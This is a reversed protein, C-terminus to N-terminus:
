RTGEPSPAGVSVSESAVSLYPEFYAEASLADFRVDQLRAEKGDEVAVTFERSASPGTPAELTIRYVGVPLRLSLPTSADEPLAQKTGDQAVVAIVTAWPFADISVSGHLVLPAAPAPRLVAYSGLGLVIVAVGGAAWAILARNGAGRWRGAAQAVPVAVRASKLPRLRATLASAAAVGHSFARPLTVTAFVSVARSTHRWQRQASVWAREASVAIARSAPPPPPSAPTAPAAALRTDAQSAPAAAPGPVQAARPSPAIVTPALVEASDLLGVGAFASPGAVTRVEGPALQEDVGVELDMRRHAEAELRQASESRPDLRRVQRAATLAAEWDGRALAANGADLAMRVSEALAAADAQEVRKLRLERELQRSEVASSDLDRIQRLIDEAEPLMSRGIADRGATLLEGVRRRVMAAAVDRELQLAAEHHENFTLAELCSEHADELRGSQLQARGRELAAEVRVSRRQNLEERAGPHSGPVPTTGGRSSGPTRKSDSHPGSGSERNASSQPGPLTPRVTDYRPDGDIQRRVQALAAGFTAADAFRHAPDKKLAREVVAVLGPPIDPVHQTLSVPEETLIRHTITAVSDGPFAEACSLLEYTVVGISFLDSRRDITGGRIQEPAMYGPTGILATGQSLSAGLIRAIGFDLIKLRNARDLMLNAPKIDRHIVDFGHAYAVGACVEEIFRLRESLSLDAKKRILRALTEGQIYEMVIFPQSEFEGFDHVTVINPHNLAAAARAERAFKEAADAADLDGAFMKIAVMRGLVPDHAVYVTGM